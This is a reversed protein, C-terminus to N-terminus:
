YWSVNPGHFIKLDKQVHRLRSILNDLGEAYKAGMKERKYTRSFGDTRIKEIQFIATEIDNIMAAILQNSHKNSQTEVLEWGSYIKAELKEIEFGDEWLDDL